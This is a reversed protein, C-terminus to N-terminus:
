WNPCLGLAQNRQTRNLHRLRLGQESLGVCIFDTKSPGTATWDLTKSKRPTDLALQGVIIDYIAEVLTRRRVMHSPVGVTTAILRLYQTQEMYSKDLTAPPPEIPVIGWGMEPMEGNLFAHSKYQMLEKIDAFVSIFTRALNKVTCNYVTGEYIFRTFRPILLYKGQAEENRQLAAVSRSELKQKRLHGLQVKDQAPLDINMNLLLADLDAQEAFINYKASPSLPTTEQRSRIKTASEGSPGKRAAGNIHPCLFPTPAQSFNM